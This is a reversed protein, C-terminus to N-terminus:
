LGTFKVLMFGFAVPCYPSRRRPAWPVLVVVPATHTGPNEILALEAGAEEVAQELEPTSTILDLLRNGTSTTIGERESAPPFVLCPQGRARHLGCILSGLSFGGVMGECASDLLDAFRPLEQDLRNGRAILLFGCPLFSLPLLIM